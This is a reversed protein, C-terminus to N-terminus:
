KSQLNIELEKEKKEIFNLVRCVREYDLKSEKMLFKTLTIVSMGLEKARASLPAPTLKDVKHLRRRLKDQNEMLCKPSEWDM